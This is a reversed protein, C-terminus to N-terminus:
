KRTKMIEKVENYSLPYYGHLNCAVDIIKYEYILRGLETDILNGHCHGHLMWSGYGIRNWSVVPYHCLVIHQRFNSNKGADKDDIWIDRMSEVTEILGREKLKYIHKRDDHNGLIFHIKGNLQKVLEELKQIGAFAMDGLYFVIDTERVTNNWNEIITQNMAEVDPKGEEDRFPRDDFKIVSKHYFHTDSCFFIECEESRKIKM